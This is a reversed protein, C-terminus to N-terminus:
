YVHGCEPGGFADSIINVGLRIITTYTLLWDVAAVISSCLAIGNMKVCM